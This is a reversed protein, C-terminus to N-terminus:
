GLVAVVVLVALLILATLVTIAVDGSRPEGTGSFRSLSNPRRTDMAPRRGSNEDSHM